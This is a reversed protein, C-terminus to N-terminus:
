AGAVPGTAPQRMVELEVYDEAVGSCPCLELQYRIARHVAALAEEGSAGHGEALGAPGAPCRAYFRGDVLRKLLVRYRMTAPPVAGGGDRWIAALTRGGGAETM